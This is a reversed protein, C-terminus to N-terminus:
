KTGQKGCISCFCVTATWLPSSPDIQDSRIMWNLVYNTLACSVTEPRAAFRLPASSM